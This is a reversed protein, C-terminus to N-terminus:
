MDTLFLSRLEDNHEGLDPAHPYIPLISSSLVFPLGSALMTGSGDEIERIGGRKAMQPDLLAEALPVYRSAPVGAAELLAQCDAASRTSTWEAMAELMLHWHEARAVPESFRPDGLWELHEMAKCMAVFNAQSLPAVMVFGDNTPLPKYLNRSNKGPFQLCQMEFPMLSMVSDMLALDIHQGAGTRLRRLLATQIAFAAFTAALVDAIQIGCNAPREQGDQLDQIALDLGSAAHVVPAYAAREVGEGTQGFGSISCYVLSPNVGQVSKWDLGFRRMVGPRYNELLVDSRAILNRAMGLDAQQKLDLVVSRKGANLHAFYASRGDRM